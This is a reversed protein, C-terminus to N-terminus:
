FVFERAFIFLIYSYFFCYYGCFYLLISLLIFYCCITESFRNFYTFFIEGLCFFIYAVDKVSM